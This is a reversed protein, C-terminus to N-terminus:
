IRLGNEILYDEYSNGMNRVFDLQYAKKANLDCNIKDKEIKYLKALEKQALYVQLNEIKLKEFLDVSNSIYNIQERTSNEINFAISYYIQAKSEEDIANEDIFKLAKKISEKKIQSDSSQSGISLETRISITNVEKLEKCIEDAYKKYFLKENEDWCIWRGIELSVEATM